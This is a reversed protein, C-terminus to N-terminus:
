DTNEEVHNPVPRTAVGTASGSLWRTYDNLRIKWNAGIHVGMSSRNKPGSWEGDWISSLRNPWKQMTLVVNYRYMVNHRRMEGSFTGM